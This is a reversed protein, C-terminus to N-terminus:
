LEIEETIWDGLVKVFSQSKKLLELRYKSTVNIIGYQEGQKMLIRIYKIKAPKVKVRWTFDPDDFSALGMNPTKHLTTWYSCGEWTFEIVEGALYAIIIDHWKHQPM